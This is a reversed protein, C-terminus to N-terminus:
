HIEKIRLRKLSSLWELNGYSVNWAFIVLIPGVPVKKIYRKFGKEEEGATDQLASESIKLLYRGRAVATIIEKATYAIPRGMQETLERALIEQREQLLNLAKVVFQQRTKLDTTRYAEFAVEARGPLLGIETQPTANRTVVAKNTAPSITILKESMSALKLSSLKPWRAQLGTFSNRGFEFKGCIQPVKQEWRFTSALPAETRALHLDVLSSTADNGSHRAQIACFMDRM